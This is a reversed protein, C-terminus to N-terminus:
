VEKIAIGHIFLMLKRKIVYEPTRMGKADHVETRGDAFTVLFDAVYHCPRELSKGNSDRQSPILEFRKQRVISVVRDHDDTAGKLAELRQWHHFERKSDFGATKRNNYKSRPEWNM